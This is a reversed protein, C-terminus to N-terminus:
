RNFLRTLALIKKATEGTLQDATVRWTWNGKASAPMNMRNSGDLELVDQVPLIAAKAVSAYCQRILANCINKESIKQGMYANMASRNEKSCDETFWGKLTNNDHTGTYAFSNITYNHPIHDSIPTDAGFAFQLVRMGPLGFEDRLQHVAEDIDGLDEAVFPLHGLQEKIQNFFDVGPGQVWTGNIATKEGGPVEWYASFARFHDLRILDFYELNKRIRQLWWSYNNQKLADWNYVPMGWLQGEASFYDPPVGAIGEVNLQKDLKFLEPNAWVDVSDYSIYFPMDGFLIVGKKEAYAKLQAWQKSFIYQLWKEKDIAESNQKSIKNLASEERNKLAKSWQYWPESKNIQKLAQYLAFDDLWSAENIKFKEFDWQRDDGAKVFNQYAKNLLKAKIIVANDFDARNTSPLDIDAIDETSLWGENVL